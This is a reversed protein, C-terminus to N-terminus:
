EVIELGGGNFTFIYTFLGLWVEYMRGAYQFTVQEFWFVERQLGSSTNYYWVVLHIALSKNLNGFRSCRFLLGRMFVWEDDMGTNLSEIGIKANISPSFALVIFLLIAVIALLNRINKNM